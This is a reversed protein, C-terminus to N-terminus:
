APFNLSLARCGLIPSTVAKRGYYEYHTEQLQHLTEKEEKESM